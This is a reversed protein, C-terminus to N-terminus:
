VALAIVWSDDEPYRRQFATRDCNSDHCQYPQCPFPFFFGLRWVAVVNYRPRTQADSAQRSNPRMRRGCPASVFLSRELLLGSQMGMACCARISILGVCSHCLARSSIRTQDPDAEGSFRNESLKRRCLRGMRKRTFRPSAGDGRRSKWM